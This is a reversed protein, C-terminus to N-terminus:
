LREDVEREAASESSTRVGRSQAVRQRIFHYFAPIVSLAIIGIALYQLNHAVFPINGFLYGATVFLGVWAAGGIINFAVFRHLEM